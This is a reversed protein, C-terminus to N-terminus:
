HPAPVSENGHLPQSLRTGTASRSPALLEAARKGGAAVAELPGIQTELREWHREACHVAAVVARYYADELAERSLLREAVLHRDAADVDSMEREVVELNPGESALGKVRADDAQRRAEGLRVRADRVRQMSQECLRETEADFEELRRVVRGVMARANQANQRLLHLYEDKADLIARIGLEADEGRKVLQELVEASPAAPPAPAPAPVNGNRSPTWTPQNPSEVHVSHGQSPEIRIVTASM